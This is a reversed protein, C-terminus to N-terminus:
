NKYIVLEVNLQCILVISFTEVRPTEDTCVNRVKAIFYKVKVARNSIKLSIYM